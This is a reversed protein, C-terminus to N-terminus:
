SIGLETLQDIGSDVFQQLGFQSSLTELFADYEDLPRQGTVFAIIGEQAFRGADAPNYGEPALVLSNYTQLKPQNEAFEIVDIDDAFKVRMYEAEDRGTFQYIWFYGGDSDLLDTPVVTDGDLNYHEGEIGFSTLRRGEETTSYAILEFLKELKEPENELTRPIGYMRTATNDWPYAGEGGPGSPPNIQIWEADPQVTKYQDVFEPKTMNPWTTNMIGAMGQMAREQAQADDQTMFDPDVAGSEVLSRFYELADVTDPDYFGNVLESGDLYFAGGREGYAPGIGGSGFAAWLPNWLGGSNGGTLGYTDDHGNGDPDDQAFAVAVDFFDDTTEPVELGLNDLWDKRIWYSSYNYGSPTVVGYDTGDINGLARLDPEVADTYAALEDDLYDSIDLLLGQEALQELRPRDVQFLDSLNGAASDASLQTYYEAAATTIMDLDVGVEEDLAAKIPDDDPVPDAAQVSIRLSAIGGGGSGDGDDSGCSALPAAAIILLLPVRRVARTM